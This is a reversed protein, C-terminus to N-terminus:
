TRAGSMRSKSWLEAKTAALAKRQASLWKNLRPENTEKDAGALVTILYRIEGDVQKEEEVTKGVEERLLARYRLRLRHLLRKATAEGTGIRKALEHFLIESHEATLSGRLVDFVRRRGKAACEEALRMLAREAITAAWQIDFTREATWHKAELQATFLQPSSDAMWEDWSVFQIESKKNAKSKRKVSNLFDQLRKLLLARFTAPSLEEHKFLNGELVTLFFDQTLDQADNASYGRRYIFTFIPRWYIRCLEADRAPSNKESIIPVPKSNSTKKRELASGKATKAEDTSLHISSVPYVTGIATGVLPSFEDEADWLKQLNSRPSTSM